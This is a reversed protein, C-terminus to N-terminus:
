STTHPTRKRASQVLKSVRKPALRSAVSERVSRHLPEVSSQFHPQGTDISVPPTFQHSAPTPPTQRVPVARVVAHDDRRDIYFRRPHQHQAM